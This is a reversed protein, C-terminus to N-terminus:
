CRVSSIPKASRLLRAVSEGAARGIDCSQWVPRRSPAPAQKDLGLRRVDDGGIDFVGIKVM